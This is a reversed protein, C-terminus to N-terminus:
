MPVTITQSPPWHRRTHLVRLIVLDRIRPEYVLVYHSGALLERTGRVRGARGMRPHETLSAARETFQADQTIAAQPNEQAIYDFIQRRDLLAPVTWWLQKM